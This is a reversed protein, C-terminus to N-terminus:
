KDRRWINEATQMGKKFQDNALEAMVDILVMKNDRSIDKNDLAILAKALTMEVKIAKNSM